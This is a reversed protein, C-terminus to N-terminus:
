NQDIADIEIAYCESRSFRFQLEYDRLNLFVHM